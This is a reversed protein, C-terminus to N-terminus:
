NKRQTPLSRKKNGPFLYNENIPTRRQSNNVHSTFLRSLTHVNIFLSVFLVSFPSFNVHMAQIFFLWVACTLQCSVLCPFRAFCSVEKQQGKFDIAFLIHLFSFNVCWSTIVMVFYVQPLDTQWDSLENALSAQSHQLHFGYLSQFPIKIKTQVKSRYSFPKTFNNSPKQKTVSWTMYECVLYLNMSMPAKCIIYPEFKIQTNNM